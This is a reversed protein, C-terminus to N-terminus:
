VYRTAPKDNIWIALDKTFMFNIGDLSKFGKLKRKICKYRHCVNQNAQFIPSSYFLTARLNGFETAMGTSTVVKEM